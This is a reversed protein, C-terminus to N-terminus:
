SDALICRSSNPVGDAACLALMTKGSGSEGAIIPMQLIRRGKTHLAAIPDWVAAEVEKNHQTRFGFRVSRM